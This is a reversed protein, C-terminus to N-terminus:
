LLPLFSIKELFKVIIHNFNLYYKKNKFFYFNSFYKKM